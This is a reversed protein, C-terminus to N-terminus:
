LFAVHILSSELIGAVLLCVVAIGANIRLDHITMYQRGRWINMSAATGTAVGTALALAELAPFVWGAITLHSHIGVAMGYRIGDLTLFLFGPVGYGIVSMLFVGLVVLLNHGVIFLGLHSGAAGAVVRHSGNTHSTLAASVVVAAEHWLFLGVIIM